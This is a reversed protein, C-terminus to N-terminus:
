HRDAQADAGEGTSAVSVPPTAASATSAPAGALTPAHLQATMFFREKGTRADTQIVGQFGPDGLYVSGSMRKLLQTAHPSQGQLAVHGTTDVSLRELWTDDPLRHTVDALVDIMAPSQARQRVLFGAAGLRQVLQNRLRAVQRARGHLAEVQTQMAALASRRNHLWQGMILALLVVVLGTLVLNLRRRPHPHSPRTATDLLNVGLREHGEAVDVADVRAGMTALRPLLPELERRPTLVLEVKLRGDAATGLARVDFCVDDVRFPTQRDMEYGVVRRLDTRAAAPLYLQRRLVQSAPLCLALRVDQPDAGSLAERWVTQQLAEAQTTDIRARVQDSGAARLTVEDAEFALLYWSVHREFWAAMRAPLCARLERGWWAFFGPLSSSRWARQMRAVAPQWTPTSATM